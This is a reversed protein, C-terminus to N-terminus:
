HKQDKPPCPDNGYSDRDRIQGNRGHILVEGQERRATDRAAGTAEGQTRHTSSVRDAGERRVAWGGDRPVVHLNSKKAM